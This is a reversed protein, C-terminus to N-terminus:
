ENKAAIAYSLATHRGMVSTCNLDVRNEAFLELMEPTSCYAAIMLPFEGESGCRTGANLSKEFIKRAAIIDNRQAAEWIDEASGPVYATAETAWDEPSALDTADQCRKDIETRDLWTLPIGHEELWQAAARVEKAGAMDTHWGDCFGSWQILLEIIGRRMIEMHMEAIKEADSFDGECYLLSEVLLFTNDDEDQLM